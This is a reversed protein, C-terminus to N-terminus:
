PLIWKKGKGAEPPRRCEKAQPWKEEIGAEMKVDDEERQGHIIEAAEKKHYKHHCIPGM